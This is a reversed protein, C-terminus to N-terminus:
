RDIVSRKRRGAAILKRAVVLTAGLPSQDIVSVPAVCPLPALTPTEDVSVEPTSRINGVRVGACTLRIAHAHGRANSGVQLLARELRSLLDHGEEDDRCTPDLNDPWGARGLREDRDIARTLEGALDVHERAAGRESRDRALSAPSTISSSRSCKSASTCVSLSSPSIMM